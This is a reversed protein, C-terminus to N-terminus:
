AAAALAPFTRVADCVVDVLRPELHPGIPLSLVQAAAAEAWPLRLRALPDGAFAEQRHPPIPYHILTSVGHSALHAALSERQPTRIVYLHWCPDAGAPTRPLALDTGALGHGYQTALAARRANWGDLHRLRVSLVAAQLEDLRSNVGQELHIYKEESGYNRLRRLRRALAADDTTVAGADGLAGLNKSPYFSWTSATGYAGVPRGALRAGHAQAADSVLALGHRGALAELGVMDAPQGYLHVPMIAATRSGIAHEVAAADITFLDGQPEVPVPRAGTATIGLWTAVYTHSPVIVEDGPGIGLAQLVLRIADLGNGVGVAHTAGASAAFANEFREVEPGLVYWGGDVVRAIAAAQEAAIERTAAGLDLFPVRVTM